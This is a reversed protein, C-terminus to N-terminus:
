NAKSSEKFKFGRKSLDQRAEVIQKKLEECAEPCDNFTATRYLVILLSVLGFIVVAYVPSILVHFRLSDDLAIFNGWLIAAWVSIFVIGGSFWELLKTM